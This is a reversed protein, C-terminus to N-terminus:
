ETLLVIVEQGTTEEVMYKIVVKDEKSIEGLMSVNLQEAQEHNLQLSKM